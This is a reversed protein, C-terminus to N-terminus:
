YVTSYNWIRKTNTGMNYMLARDYQTGEDELGMVIFCLAAYFLIFGRHELYYQTQTYYKVYGGGGGVHIASTCAHQDPTYSPAM